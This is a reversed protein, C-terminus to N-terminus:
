INIDDMTATKANICNRIAKEVPIPPNGNFKDEYQFLVQLASDPQNNTLYTEGLFYLADYPAAKETTNFFDYKEVTNKAAKRLYPLAKVQEDISNFYCMGMKFNANSNAADQALVKQWVSIAANFQGNNLLKNGEDMMESAPTKTTKDDMAFNNAAILFSVVLLSAKLLYHKKM